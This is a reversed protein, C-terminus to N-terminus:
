NATTSLTVVRPPRQRPAQLSRHSSSRVGLGATLRGTTSAPWEYPPPAAARAAASLGLATERRTKTEGSTSHDTARRHQLM